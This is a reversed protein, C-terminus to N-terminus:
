VPFAWSFIWPFKRNLSNKNYNFIDIIRKRAMWNMLIRTRIRKFIVFFNPPRLFVDSCLPLLPLTDIDEINCLASNDRIFRIISVRYCPSELIDRDLFCNHTYSYRHVPRHVTIETVETRSIARSVILIGFDRVRNAYWRMGRRSSQSADIPLFLCEVGFPDFPDSVSIRSRSSARGTQLQLYWKYENAHSQSLTLRMKQGIKGFLFLKIFRAFNVRALSAIASANSSALTTLLSASHRESLTFLRVIAIISIAILIRSLTQLYLREYNERKNKKYFTIRLARNIQLCAHTGTYEGDIAFIFNYFIIYLHICIYQQFISMLSFYQSILM